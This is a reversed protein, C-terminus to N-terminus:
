LQKKVGPLPPLFPPHQVEAELITLHSYFLYATIVVIVKFGSHRHNTNIDCTNEQAFKELEKSQMGLAWTPIRNWLSSFSISTPETGSHSQKHTRTKVAVTPMPIPNRRSAVKFSACKPRFVQWHSCLDPVVGCQIGKINQPDQHLYFWIRALIDLGALTFCLNYTILLFISSAYETCSNLSLPM